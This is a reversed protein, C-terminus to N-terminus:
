TFSICEKEALLPLDMSPAFLNKKGPLVEEKLNPFEHLVKALYYSMDVKVQGNGFKLQMGLYLHVSGVEMTIWRFEKTFAARLRDLEGQTAFILLDDVYVTILYVRDEVVKRFVCPDTKSQEYGLRVLFTHIKEYWLKSAQVCGYLAKRLKCYLVGDSGVHKQLKRRFNAV